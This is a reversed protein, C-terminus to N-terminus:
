KWKVSLSHFCLSTVMNKLSYSASSWLICRPKLPPFYSFFKSAFFTTRSRGGRGGGWCALYAVNLSYSAGGNEEWIQHPPTCRITQFIRYTLQQLGCLESSHKTTNVTKSDWEQDWWLYHEKRRSVMGRDWYEDCQVTTRTYKSTWGVSSFLSIGLGRQIGLLLSHPRVSQLFEVFVEQILWHNFLSRNLDYASHM